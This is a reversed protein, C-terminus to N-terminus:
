STKGHQCRLTDRHCRAFWESQGLGKLVVKHAVRRLGLRHPSNDPPHRSAVYEYKPQRTLLEPATLRYLYAIRFSHRHAQKRVFKIVSHRVVPHKSPSPRRKKFRRQRSARGSGSTPILIAGPSVTQSLAPQGHDRFRCRCGLANHTRAHSLPLRKLAPRAREIKPLPTTGCM